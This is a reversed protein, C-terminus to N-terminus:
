GDGRPGFAAHTSTTSGGHAPLDVTFIKRARRTSALREALPEYLKSTDGLGHVMLVVDTAQLSGEYENM